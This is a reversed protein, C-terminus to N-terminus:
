KEAGESNGKEAGLMKFTFFGLLGIIVIMIGWLWMPNEFFSGTDTVAESNSISVENGLTLPALVAPISSTFHDIDYDPRSASPYGYVLSYDAEETFRAVLEHVYGDVSVQSINLPQNDNNQIVIKFNDATVNSCNFVNDEFSSFTRRTVESYNRIYGKETKTSDV